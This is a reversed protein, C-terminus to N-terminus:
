TTVTVALPDAIRSLRIPGDAGVLITTSGLYGGVGREWVYGQVALVMDAHLPGADGADPGLAGGVLPPEVGIGVGHALLVPPLPEGTAIWADRLRAPAVGPRCQAVMADVAQQWRAFLARHAPSPATATSGACPWTATAAGEYGGYLVGGSCAVLDGAGLPLERAVRRLPPGSSAHDDARPTSCFVPEFAPLTTGYRAMAESFRAKLEVETVGPELAATTETMAGEAIALAVRICDVEAALKGARVGRMLQEGDVLEANPALTAFLQAMGPSMGDVGVTTARALGDIRALADVTLRPNWMLGSLNDTTIERPIGDDWTTGMLHIQETERVVICMPGFPTLVARWLSRHGAVYKGNGRRGLVLVDVGQREMEGFVRARRQRRLQHFDIGAGDETAMLGLPRM